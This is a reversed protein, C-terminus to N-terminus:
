YFMMRARRAARRHERERTERDGVYAYYSSRKESFLSSNGCGKRVCSARNVDGCKGRIQLAAREREEEKDSSDPCDAQKKMDQLHGSKKKERVREREGKKRPEREQGGRVAETRSDCLCLTVGDSTAPAVAAAAAAAIATFGRRERARHQEIQLCCLAACM